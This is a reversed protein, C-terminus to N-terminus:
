GRKILGMPLRPLGVRPEGGGARTRGGGAGWVGPAGHCREVVPLGGLVLRCGARRVSFLRLHRVFASIALKARNAAIQARHGDASACVRARGTPMRAPRAGARRADKPSLIYEATAPFCGGDVPSIPVGHRRTPPIPPARPNDCECCCGCSCACGKLPAQQPQSNHSLRVVSNVVLVRNHNHTTFVTLGEARGRSIATKGVSLYIRRCKAFRLFAGYFLIFFPTAIIM